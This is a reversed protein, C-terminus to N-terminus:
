VMTGQFFLLQEKVVSGDRCDCSCDTQLGEVSQQKLNRPESLLANGSVQEKTVSHGQRRAWAGCFQRTLQFGEVRCVCPVCFVQCFWWLTQCNGFIGAVAPRNGAMALQRLFCHGSSSSSINAMAGREPEPEPELFPSCSREEQGPQVVPWSPM